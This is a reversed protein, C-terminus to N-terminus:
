NEDQRRLAHFQRAAEFLEDIMSPAIGHNILYAFGVQSCAERITDAVRHLGAQTNDQLSALDIVPIDNFMGQPSTSTMLHAGFMPILLEFAM